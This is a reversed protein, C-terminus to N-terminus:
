VSVGREEETLYQDIALLEISSLIGKRAMAATQIAEVALDLATKYIATLEEHTAEPGHNERVGIWLNNMLIELNQAEEKAEEAEELIVAFAEHKGNFLPFKENAAELEKDILKYIDRKVVDSMTLDGKRKIYNWTAPKRRMDERLRGIIQGPVPKSRNNSLRRRLPERKDGAM